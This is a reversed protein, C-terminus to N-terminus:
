PSSWSRNAVNSTPPSMSARLMPQPVDRDEPPDLHDQDDSDGGVGAGLGPVGPDLVDLARGAALAVRGSCPGITRAVAVLAPTFVPMLSVDRPAAFLAFLGTAALLFGAPQALRLSPHGSAAVVALTRRRFPKM